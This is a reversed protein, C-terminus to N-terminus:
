SHDRALSAPQGARIASAIDLGVMRWDARVALFDAQDPTLSKNYENLTSGFDVLRAVGEVFSPTAGLFFGDNM